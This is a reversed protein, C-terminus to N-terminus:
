IHILSLSHFIEIQLSLICIVFSTLMQIAFNYYDIQLGRYAPAGDGGRVLNYYSGISDADELKWVKKIGIYRFVDLEPVIPM